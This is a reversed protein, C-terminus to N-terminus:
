RFTSARERSVIMAGRSHFRARDWGGRGPPAASGRPARLSAGPSQSRERAALHARPAPQPWSSGPWSDWAVDSVRGGSRIHLFVTATGILAGVIRALSLLAGIARRHPAPAPPAPGEAVLSSQLTYPVPARPHLYFSLAPWGGTHPNPDLAQAGGAVDGLRTRGITRDTERSRTDDLLNSGSLHAPLRDQIVGSASPSRSVSCGLFCGTSAGGQSPRRSGRAAGAKGRSRHPTKADILIQPARGPSIWFHCGKREYRLEDDRPRLLYRTRPPHRLQGATGAFSASASTTGRSGEAGRDNVNAV